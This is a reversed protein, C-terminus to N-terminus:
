EAAEREAEPAEIAEHAPMLRPANKSAAEIRKCANDFNSEDIEIGIFKKGLNLVAIGTTGSGM